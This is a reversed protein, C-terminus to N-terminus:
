NWYEFGQLTTVLFLSVELQPFNVASHRGGALWMLVQLVSALTAKDQFSAPFGPVNAREPDVTEAAWEQLVSDAIVDSDSAYVEDVFDTVFQGYAAWLKAGDELYFYNPLGDFDLSFGRSELDMNLGSDFFDYQSWQDRILQYTQGTGISALLDLTDGGASQYAFFSDRGITNIALTDRIVPLLLDFLPHGNRRLVNHIALIHPEM